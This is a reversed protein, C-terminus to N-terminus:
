ETDVTFGQDAQAYGVHTYIMYGNPDSIGGSQGSTIGVAHVHSQNSNVNVTTPPENTPAEIAGGSCGGETYTYATRTHPVTVASPYGNIVEPGYTITTDTSRVGACTNLGANLVADWGRQCVAAGVIDDGDGVFSVNSVRDRFANSDSWVEARATASAAASLNILASDNPFGNEFRSKRMDGLPYAGGVAWTLGHSQNLFQDCHGATLMYKAGAMTVRFATSCDIVYGAATSPREIMLGGSVPPASNQSVSQPVVEARTRPRSSSHVVQYPGEGVVSMLAASVSSANQVTEVQVLDRDDLRSIAVVGLGGGSTAQTLRSVWTSLEVASRSVTVSRLREPMAFNRQLEALHAVANRLFGVVLVGGGAQDLWVTAYDRRGEPSLLGPLSSADRQLDLRQAMERVEDPLLRVGFRRDRAVGVLRNGTAADTGLGFARRFRLEDVTLAAPAAAAAPRSAPVSGSSATASGTAMVLGLPVTAAVLLALHKKM